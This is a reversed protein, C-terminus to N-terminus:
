RNPLYAEIAMRVKYPTSIGQDYQAQRERNDPIEASLRYKAVTRRAITGVRQRIQSDSYARKDRFEEEFVTNFVKTM